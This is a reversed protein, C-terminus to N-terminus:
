AAIKARAALIEVCAKAAEKGKVAFHEHFFRHHEASDHYNHPTLVASLVPVGTALQVNMMGDIVARAVFDHRYIGGNVVFATGLIAAYRGTEALTKAHLPIEYAGPVDFVEVAFGGLAALEAEFATVCQDVIDAHWRARIVAVHRVTHDKPFHQNM